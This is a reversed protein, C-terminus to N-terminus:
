LVWARSSRGRMRSAEQVTPFERPHSAVVGRVRKDGPEGARQFHDLNGREETESVRTSRLRKWTWAPADRPM